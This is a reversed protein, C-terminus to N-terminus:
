MCWTSRSTRRHRTSHVAFADGDQPKAWLERKAAVCLTTGNMAANMSGIPDAYQM